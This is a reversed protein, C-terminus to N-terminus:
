FVADFMADLRFHLAPRDMDAAGVLIAPEVQFNAIITLADGFLLDAPDVVVAHSKRVYPLSDLHEVAVVEFKAHIRLIAISGTYHDLQWNPALPSLTLCWAPM